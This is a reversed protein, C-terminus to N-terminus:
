SKVLEIHKPRQERRHGWRAHTQGHPRPDKKKKHEKGEADESLELWLDLPSASGLIHEM